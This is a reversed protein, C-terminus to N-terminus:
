EVEMFVVITPMPEGPSLPQLTVTTTSVPGRVPAEEYVNVTYTGAYNVHNFRCTDGNTATAWSYAFAPGGITCHSISWGVPPVIELNAVPHTVTGNALAVSAILSLVFAAITKMTM